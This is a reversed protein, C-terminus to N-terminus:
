GKQGEQQMAAIARHWNHPKIQKAAEILEAAMASVSGGKVDRIEALHTMCQESVRVSIPRLNGTDHLVNPM